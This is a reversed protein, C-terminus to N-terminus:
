CLGSALPGLKVPTVRGVRAVRIVNPQTAVSSFLAVQFATASGEPTTVMLEAESTEVRAIEITVDDSSVFYSSTTEPESTTQAMTTM